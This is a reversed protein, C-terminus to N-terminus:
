WALDGGGAAEPRWTALANSARAEPATRSSFNIKASTLSRSDASGAARARSAGHLNEGLSLLDFYGGLGPEGESQLVGHTYSTVARTVPALRPMPRAM